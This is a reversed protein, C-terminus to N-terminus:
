REQEEPEGDSRDNLFDSEADEWMGTEAAPLALEIYSDGEGIRQESIIVAGIAACSPL